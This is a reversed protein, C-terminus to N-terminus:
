RAADVSLPEEASEQCPGQKSRGSKVVNAFPEWATGYPRYRCGARCCVDIVGSPRVRCLRRLITTWRKANALRELENVTNDSFLLVVYLFAICVLCIGNMIFFCALPLMVWGTAAVACAAVGLVFAISHCVVFAVFYRVNDRAICTGVLACHHDHRAFCRNCFECHSARPPRWLQCKHCWRSGSGSTNAVLRGDDGDDSSEASEADGVGSGVLLSGPDTINVLALCVLGTCGLATQLPEVWEPIVGKSYAAFHSAISFGVTILLVFAPGGLRQVMRGTASTSDNLLANLAAFHADMAAQMEFARTALSSSGASRRHLPSQVSLNV